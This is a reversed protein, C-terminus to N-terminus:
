PGNWAAPDTFYFWTNALGTTDEPDPVAASTDVTLTYLGTPWEEGVSYRQASAEECHANPVPTPLTVPGSPGTASLVVGPAAYFASDATVQIQIQGAASSGQLYVPVNSAPIVPSTLVDYREFTVLPDLFSQPDFPDFVPETPFTCAGEHMDERAVCADIDGDPCLFFEVPGERVWAQERVGPCALSAAIHYNLADGALTALRTDAGTASVLADGLPASFDIGVPNAESLGFPLAVSQGDSEWVEDAKDYGEAFVFIDAQTLTRERHPFKYLERHGIPDAYERHLEWVNTLNIQLRRMNAFLPVMAEGPSQATLFLATLQGWVGPQLPDSRVDPNVNIVMDIMGDFRREGIAVDWANVTPECTAPDACSTPLAGREAADPVVTQLVEPTVVTLLMPNGCADVAEDPSLPEGGLVRDAFLQAQEMATGGVADAVPLGPEAPIWEGAPDKQAGRMLLQMPDIPESTPDLPDGNFLTLLARRVETSTSSEDTLRMAIRAERAEWEVPIDIQPVSSFAPDPSGGGNCGLALLAAV